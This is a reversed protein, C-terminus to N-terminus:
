FPIVKKPCSLYSEGWGGDDRQSGLLFDVGKRVALCNSYTKGAAALGGLAFWTGYIFCIGWNGYRYYNKSYKTMERVIKQWSYM